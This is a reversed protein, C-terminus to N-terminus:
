CIEFVKFRLSMFGESAHEGNLELCFLADGNISPVNTVCLVGSPFLTRRMPFIAQSCVSGIARISMPYDLSASYVYIHSFNTM